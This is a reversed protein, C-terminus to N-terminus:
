LSLPKGGSKHVYPKIDDMIADECDNPNTNKKIYICLANRMYIFSGDNM